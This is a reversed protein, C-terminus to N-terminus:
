VAEGDVGSVADGKEVGSVVGGAELAAGCLGGGDAAGVCGSLEGAGADGGGGGGGDVAGVGGFEAVGTFDACCEGAKATAKELHGARGVRQLAGAVNGPSDVQVVLDLAGVDIGLELSSTALVADLEGRKLAQETELRVEKSISGHHPLIRPVRLLPSLTEGEGGKRMGGEANRMEREGELVEMFNGALREILRRSNAFVLTSRHERILTLVARTVEPWHGVGKEKREEPTLAVEEEGGFPCVVGLDLRKRQGARVIEM